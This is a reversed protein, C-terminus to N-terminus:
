TVPAVRTMLVLVSLGPTSVSPQHPQTEQSSPGGLQGVSPLEARCPWCPGTGGSLPTPPLQQIVRSGYAQPPTTPPPSTFVSQGGNGPLGQLASHTGCLGRSFFRGIDKMLSHLIM